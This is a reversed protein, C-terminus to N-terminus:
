GAGPHSPRSRQATENVKEWDRWDERSLSTVAHHLNADIALTYDELPKNAWRWFTDFADATM